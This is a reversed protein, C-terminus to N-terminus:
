WKVMRDAFPPKWNRLPASCMCAGSPTLIVPGKGTIINIGMRAMAGTLPPLQNPLEAWWDPTWGDVPQTRYVYFGEPCAYVKCDLWPKSDGPLMVATRPWVMKIATPEPVVEPEPEDPVGGLLPVVNPNIEQGTPYVRRRPSTAM